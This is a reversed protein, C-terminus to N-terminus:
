LKVASACGICMWSNANLYHVAFAQYKIIFLGNHRNFESAINTQRFGRFGAKLVGYSRIRALDCTNACVEDRRALEHPVAVDYLVLIVLHHTWVPNAQEAQDVM